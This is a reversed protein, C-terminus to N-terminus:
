FVINVAQHNEAELLTQIKDIKKDKRNDAISRENLNLEIIIATAFIEM